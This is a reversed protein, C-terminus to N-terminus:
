GPSRPGARDFPAHTPRPTAPQGRAHDPDPAREDEDTSGEEARCRLWVVRCRGALPVREQWHVMEFTTGCAGPAGELRRHGKIRSSRYRVTQLMAAAPPNAGRKRCVDPR